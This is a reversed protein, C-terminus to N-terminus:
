PSVAARAAEIDRAIQAKLEDLGAFKKEDRIRAVLHVRLRRDYLDGSFDFVHTEVRRTTGDVTPRVGINTVGAGLPRAPGGSGEAALLDVRVAYVGHSPLLEPVGELNATPVGITKGRGDGHAVVGSVSHPRGLVAAAEEVRGAAIADRARTSSFAGNADVAASHVRAELGLRAGESRLMALDGARKAGFRFNEGVVVVRAALVGAVLDRVFRGPSWAAFEADFHRVYVREVGLAGALEARRELTTLLAPAGRGVVLGPHPDFTLVCAALKSTRALSVAERLVAQHGRHVGDFNGVVLACPEAGIAVRTAGGEVLVLQASV